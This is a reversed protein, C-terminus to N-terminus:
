IIKKSLSSGKNIGGGKSPEQDETATSNPNIKSNSAKFFKRIDSRPEEISLHKGRTSRTRGKQTSTRNLSPKNPHKLTDERQHTHSLIICAAQNQYTCFFQLVSLIVHWIEILFLLLDRCRYFM